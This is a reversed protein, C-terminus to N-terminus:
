VHYVMLAVVQKTVLEELDTDFRENILDVDNELKTTTRNVQHV